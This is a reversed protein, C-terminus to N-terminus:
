MATSSLKQKWSAASSKMCSISILGTKWRNQVLYM